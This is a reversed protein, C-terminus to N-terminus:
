QVAGTLLLTRTDTRGKKRVALIHLGRDTSENIHESRGGCGDSSTGMTIYTRETLSTMLSRHDYRISAREFIWRDGATTVMRVCDHGLRSRTCDSLEHIAEAHM